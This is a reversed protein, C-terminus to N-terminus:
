FANNSRCKSSHIRRRKFRLGEFVARNRPNSITIYSFPTRNEMKNQEKWKKEKQYAQEYKELFERELKLFKADSNPNDSTKKQLCIKIYQYIQWLTDCDDCMKPMPMSLLISNFHQIIEPPISTNTITM